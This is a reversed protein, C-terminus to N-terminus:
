SWAPSSHGDGGNDWLAPADARRTLVWVENFGAAGGSFGQAVVQWQRPATEQDARAALLHMSASGSASGSAASALACDTATGCVGGFQAVRIYYTPDDQFLAWVAVTNAAPSMQTGCQAGFLDGVTATSFEWTGDSATKTQLVTLDGPPPQAPVAPVGVGPSYWTGQFVKGFVTCTKSPRFAVGRACIFGM